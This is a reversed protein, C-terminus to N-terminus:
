NQILGIINNSTDKVSAVLRGGGVDNIDRIITAGDDVLMQLSNRIDDVHFYATASGESSGPILGIDQNNIKYGIYYPSDAYPEVGLFKTFLLKSKAM